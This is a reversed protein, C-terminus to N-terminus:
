SSKKVEETKKELKNLAQKIQTESEKTEPKSPKDAPAKPEEKKAEKKVEEKKPEAKKEEKKTDAPKTEKKVAEEKVEKKEAAKKEEKKPEEETVQLKEKLKGALGTAEEKKKKIEKKKFEFGFLEVRVEGENNKTANVKVHHPPNRIGNAWLAMNLKPGILVEETKMHKQMFERVARVAKKARRYKPTKLYERRLPITYTRELM